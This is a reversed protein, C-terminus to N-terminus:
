PSPRQPTLLKRLESAPLNLTASAKQLDGDEREVVRGAIERSVWNILDAGVPALNIVQDIATAIFAPSKGPASALPVRRRCPPQRRM